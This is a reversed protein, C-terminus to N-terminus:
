NRAVTRKAAESWAVEVHIKLQAPLLAAVESRTTPERKWTDVVDALLAQGGVINSEAGSHASLRGGQWGDSVRGRSRDYTIRGDRDRRNFWGRARDALVAYRPHATVALLSDMAQVACAVGDPEIPEHEFNSMIPPVILREASRMAIIILGPRGLARGARALVAEQLHGRLRLTAEGKQDLLVGKHTCSALEDCWRELEARRLPRNDGRKLAELADLMHIARVQPPVASGGIATLVEAYAEVARPVGRASGRALARLGRAQWYSGGARSTEGCENATGSWDLIFNAFAGNPRRMALVFELLGRAWEDFLRAGTRTYLDDLFVVARAADDVCAVGECARDRAAMLHDQEDAYVALALAREGASPVPRTLRALQQLM